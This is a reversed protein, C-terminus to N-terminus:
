LCTWFMECKIYLQATEFAYSNAQSVSDDVKFEKTAPWEHVPGQKM